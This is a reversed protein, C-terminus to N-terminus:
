KKAKYHATRYREDSRAKADNPDAPKDDNKPSEVAQVYAARRAEDIATVSGATEIADDYRAQIYADSQGDLKAKPKLKLVIARKIDIDTKGDLKENAGLHRRAESLLAGRAHARKEVMRGLSAARRDATDMKKPFEGKGDCNKCEGNGSCEDCKVMKEADANAREIEADLKAQAESRKKEAEARAAESEDARKNAAAIKQERETLAKDIVAQMNADTVEFVLGDIKLQAMNPKEKVKLPLMGTNDTEFISVADGSDLRAIALPGARAADVAVAFHNGKVNIQQCDYGEGNPSVGPTEDLECSYGCSVAPRAKADTKVKEDWLKIRGVIWEGDFTLEEGVTGTAYQKVNAPTVMEPPHANTVPLNKFSELSEKVVEPSRYERIEIGDARRYVQVGTRAMRTHVEIFGNSDVVPAGLATLGRDYRNVRSMRDEHGALRLLTALM